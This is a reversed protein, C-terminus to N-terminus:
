YWNCIMKKDSMVKGAHGPLDTLGLKRYFGDSLFLALNVQQKSIWGFVAAIIEIQVRFCKFNDLALNMGSTFKGDHGPLDTLGSKEWILLPM